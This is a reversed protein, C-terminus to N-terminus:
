SRGEDDTLFTLGHPVHDDDIDAWSDVRVWTRGFAGVETRRYWIHSGAPFRDIYYGPKTPLPPTMKEIHDWDASQYINRPTGLMSGVVRTVTFTAEDGIKNSVRVRDGVKIDSIDIV